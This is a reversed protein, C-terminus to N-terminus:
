LFQLNLWARSFDRDRLAEREIAYHLLGSGGWDMVAQESSDVQFLLRWHANVDRLIKRWKPGPPVGRHDGPPRGSEAACTVLTSYALSYPHGLLRYGPEEGPHRNIEPDLEILASREKATLRLSWVEPGAIDPLSVGSAFRAACAPFRAAENLKAPTRRRAFTAPDAEHYLIRWGKSPDYGPSGEPEGGAEEELGSSYLPEGDTEYFFSLLGSAPLAGEVDLPAVEALNIQGLFAMPEHWSPWDVGVPLDPRGGIKSGGVPIKAEKVAEIALGITPAAVALLPEAVRGLDQERLRRGLEDSTM